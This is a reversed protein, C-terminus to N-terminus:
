ICDAIYAPSFTVCNNFRGQSRTTVAHLLSYLTYFCCNDTDGLIRLRSIRTGLLLHHVFFFLLPGKRTLPIEKELHQARLQFFFAFNRLSTGKPLYNDCLSLKSETTMSSSLRNILNSRSIFIRKARNLGPNFALNIIYLM